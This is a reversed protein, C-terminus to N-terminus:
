IGSQFWNKYFVTKEDIRINSNNWLIENYHNYIVSNFNLKSWSMLIDRLFPKNFHKAIDVESFNGESLLNGGFIKFDNEYVTKLLSNNECQRFRKIWSAKLSWIFKEIDSMRRGGQDYDKVLTRRKIKDPTSDWLFDYMLKEVRKIMEKTPNQLSTLPYILKPLAFNKIVVIKGMLTLKRHSWQQLCREFEKIKPELNSSLMNTKFVM